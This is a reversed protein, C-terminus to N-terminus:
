SLYEDFISSLLHLTDGCAITADILLQNGIRRLPGSGPYAHQSPSSGAQQASGATSDKDTLEHSTDDHQINTANVTKLQRQHDGGRTPTPRRHDGLAGDFLDFREREQRELQGDADGHQADRHRHM